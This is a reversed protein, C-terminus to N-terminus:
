HFAVAMHASAAHFFLYLDCGGANLKRRTTKSRTLSESAVAMAVGLIQGIDKPLDGVLVRRWLLEGPSRLM